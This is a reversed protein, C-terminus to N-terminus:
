RVGRNSICFFGVCEVVSQYERRLEDNLIEEFRRTFILMGDIARLISM